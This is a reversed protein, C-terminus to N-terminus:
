LKLTIMNNSTFYIKDDLELSIIASNIKIKDIKSFERYIMDISTPSSNLLSLIKSQIKNETNNSNIKFESIDENVSLKLDQQTYFNNIDSKSLTNIIDHTNEVLTAGNKILYNTGNLNNSIPFSPVAMVTRNQSKAYKATILSGSKINAEIVLTALSLGSIIRNRKPFLNAAPLTGIPMESIIAGQNIIEYYLKKNTEPYINDIGGALVAITKNKINNSSIAGMHAHTDIGIAMGSVIEYDNDVLDKAINSTFTKANISANRSGVIAITKSTQLTEINGLVYILAPKEPIQNLLKPFNIDTGFIINANMSNTLEIQKKAFDKSTTKIDKFKELYEIANSATKYKSLLKYFTVSGISPTFALRIYDIKEEYNM